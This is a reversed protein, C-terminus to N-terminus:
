AGHGDGILCVLIQEHSTENMSCKVLPLTDSLVVHKVSRFLFLRRNCIFLHDLNFYFFHDLPVYIAKLINLM